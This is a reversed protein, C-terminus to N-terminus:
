AGGPGTMTSFIKYRHECKVMHYDHSTSTIIEVECVFFKLSLTIWCIRWPRDDPLHGASAGGVRSAGLATIPVAPGDPPLGQDGGGERRIVRVGRLSKVSQRQKGDTEKWGEPVCVGSTRQNLGRALYGSTQNHCPGPGQHRSLTPSLWCDMLWSHFGLRWGSLSPNKPSLQRQGPLRCM